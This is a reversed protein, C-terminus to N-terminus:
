KEVAATIEAGNPRDRPEFVTVLNGNEDILFKIFDWGVQTDNIHNYRKDSLWKFLPSIESGKVTMKAALPFTVNYHKEVDPMKKSGPEIQFDNAIVGIIVLKDKHKKYLEELEKYQYAYDREEPVNVILIKKGKYLSFDITGGKLAAVKFDYISAPVVDSQAHAFYFSLGFFAVLMFKM